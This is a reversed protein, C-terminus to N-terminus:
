KLLSAKILYTSFSDIHFCGKQAISNALYVPNEPYSVVFEGLGKEEVNTVWVTNTLAEKVKFNGSLDNVGAVSVTVKKAIGKIYNSVKELVKPAFKEGLSKLGKAAADEVNGAMGHAEETGAALIINKGGPGRTVLRYTLRVTVNNFPMSIGHGIAEGKRTSIVYDVKGILMINSLFKYMLSRLTLFNGNKLAMEVQEADVTQTLAVDVVTYGQETLKGIVTESLTNTEDQVDTTVITKEQFRKSTRTNESVMRPNKALLFVAISSNLSLESLADQALSPEICANIRVSITDPMKNESLIKFGTVVGKLKRSVADDVMAMNQVVSQAKIEVGVAQEIATWKARAVAESRASPVDNNVIAAEGESDLCNAALIPDACVVSISIALLCSIINMNKLIM